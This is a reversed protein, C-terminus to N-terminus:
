FIINKRPIYEQVNLMITPSTLIIEFDIKYILTLEIDKMKEIDYIGLNEIDSFMMVADTFIKKHPLLESVITTSETIVFDEMCINKGELSLPIDTKNEVLLKIGYYNGHKAIGLYTANLYTNNWITQNIDYKKINEM